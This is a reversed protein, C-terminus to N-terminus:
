PDPDTVSPPKNADAVKSYTKANAYVHSSTQKSNKHRFLGVTNTFKNRNNVTGELPDKPNSPM